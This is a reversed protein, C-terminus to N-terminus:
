LCTSERSHSLLVSRLIHCGRRYGELWRNGGQIKFEIPVKLNLLFKCIKLASYTMSIIARGSPNSGGVVQNSALPVKRGNEAGIQWYNYM